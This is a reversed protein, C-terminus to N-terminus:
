EKFVKPRIMHKYVLKKFFYKVMVRSNLRSNLLVFIYIYIYIYM